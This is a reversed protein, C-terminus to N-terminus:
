IPGNKDSLMCPRFSTVELLSLAPLLCRMHSNQVQLRNGHCFLLLRCGKCNQKQTCLFVFSGNRRKFFLASYRSRRTSTRRMAWWVIEAMLNWPGLVRNSKRVAELNFKKAIFIRHVVQIAEGRDAVDRFFDNGMAQGDFISRMWHHRWYGTGGDMSGAFMCTEVEGKHKQEKSVSKFKRSELQTHRMKRAQHHERHTGWHGRGNGLPRPGFFISSPIWRFSSGENCGLFGDNSFTM